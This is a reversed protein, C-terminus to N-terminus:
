ERRPDRLLKTYCVNYSTIRDVDPAQQTRQGVHKTRRRVLVSHHQPHLGTVAQRAHAPAVFVTQQLNKRVQQAIGQLEDAAAFDTQLHARDARGARIRNTDEYYSRIAYM